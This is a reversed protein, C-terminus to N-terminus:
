QFLFDVNSSGDNRTDCAEEVVTNYRSILQLTSDKQINYDELSLGDELEEGAFILMQYDPRMGEKERIKAKVSAITHSSAVEFAFTKFGHIPNKPLTNVFIRMTRRPRQILYLTSAKVINYNGLSRRDELERGGFVLLQQDPPIMEKHYIKNKLKQIKDCSKFGDLSIINGTLTKVFIHFRLRVVVLYLTSHKAINYDHLTRGDELQKRDFLLVQQDLAYGEKDHIKAKVNYITDCSQVEDLTITKGSTTKVFVQFPERRNWVLHIFSENQINYDALTQGYKLYRGAFVLIQRNVETGEKDLIKAKLNDITDSSKVEITIIKDWPSRLFIQMADRLRVALYLTSEKKINYDALTRGDELKTGGFVLIHRDPSIGEKDHIKAKVDKITDSSEVYLTITKDESNKDACTKVFIRMGGDEQFLDPDRLVRRGMQVIYLSSEEQINYDALTRGHELQTGFFILRQQDQPIGEKEQIMEMVNDITNSSVVALTITKGTLTKVFIQM